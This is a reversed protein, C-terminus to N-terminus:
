ANSQEDADTRHDEVCLREAYRIVSLDKELRYMDPHTVNERDIQQPPDDPREDTTRM